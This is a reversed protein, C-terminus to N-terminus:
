PRTGRTGAPARRPTRSRRSRSHGPSRRLRRLLPLLGPDNVLEALGVLRPDPRRVDLPVVPRDALLDAPEGPLRLRERLLQPVQPGRDREVHGPVVEHPGVPRQVPHRRRHREADLLREPRQLPQHRLLTGCRPQPQELGWSDIRNSIRVSSAPVGFRGRLSPTPPTMAKAAQLLPSNASGLLRFPHAFHIKARGGRSRCVAVVVVLVSSSNQAVAALARFVHPDVAFWWRCRWRAKGFRRLRRGLARIRWRAPQVNVLERVGLLEKLELLSDGRVGHGPAGVPRSPTM